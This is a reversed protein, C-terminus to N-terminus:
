EEEKPMWLRCVQYSAVDAPSESWLRNENTCLTIGDEQIGYRCTKCEMAEM